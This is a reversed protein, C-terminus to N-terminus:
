APRRRRRATDPPSSGADAVAARAFLIGAFRVNADPVGARDAQSDADRLHGPSAGGHTPLRRPRTARALRAPGLRPFRRSAARYRATGSHGGLVFVAVAAAVAVALVVGAAVIARERRPSRWADKGTARPLPAM